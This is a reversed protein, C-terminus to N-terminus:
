KDNKNLEKKKDRRRVAIRPVIRHMHAMSRATNSLVICQIALYCCLKRARTEDAASPRTLECDSGSSLTTRRPRLGRGAAERWRRLVATAASSPSLLTRGRERRRSPKGGTQFAERGGPLSGATQFAEQGEPLSGARRRRRTETVSAEPGAIPGQRRWVAAWCISERGRRASGRM